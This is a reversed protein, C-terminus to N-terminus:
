TVHYDKKIFVVAQPGVGLFGLEVSKSLALCQGKLLEWPAGVTYHALVPSFKRDKGSYKVTVVPIM